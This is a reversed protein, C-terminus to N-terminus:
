KFNYRDRKEQKLVTIRATLELLEQRQVAVLQLLPWERVHHLKGQWLRVGWVDVPLSQLLCLFPGSTSFQVKVPQLDIHYWKINHYFNDYFPKIHKQKQQNQRLSICHNGESKTVVRPNFSYIIFLKLIIIITNVECSYSSQPSGRGSPWGGGDPSWRSQRSRGHHFWSQM